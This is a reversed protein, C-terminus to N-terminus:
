GVIEDRTIRMVEELTTVGECARVWGANRLSTMGRQEALARLQALSAGRVVAERLEPTMPMLEYLGMRGKYGTGSCVDCGKGRRFRPNSVNAQGAAVTALVDADPLIDEACADCVMRVLRQALIGLVTAAV